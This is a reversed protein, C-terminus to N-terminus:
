RRKRKRAERSLDIQGKKPKPIWYPKELPKSKYTWNSKDKRPCVKVHDPMESWKFIHLDNFPWKDFHRKDQPKTDWHIIHYHLGWRDTVHASDYPCQVKENLDM